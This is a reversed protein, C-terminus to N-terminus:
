RKNNKKKRKPKNQEEPIQELPRTQLIKDSIERKNSEVPPSDDPCGGAGCNSNDADLAVDLYMKGKYSPAFKFDRFVIKEFGLYKLDVIIEYKASKFGAAAKLDYLNFPLNLIYVGEDNTEAEFREGKAGIATVKIGPIVAGTADYVTGTLVAKESTQAKVLIVFGLILVLIQLVRM